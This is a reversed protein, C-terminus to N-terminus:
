IKLGMVMLVFDQTPCKVMLMLETHRPVGVADSLRRIATVDTSKEGARKARTERGVGLQEEDIRVFKLFDMTAVSGAAEVDLAAILVAIELLPDTAQFKTM